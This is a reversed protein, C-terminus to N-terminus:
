TEKYSKILKDNDLNSESMLYGAEIRYPKDFCDNYIDVRGRLRIYRSGPGMILTMCM